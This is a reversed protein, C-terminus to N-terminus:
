GTLSEHFVAVIDPLRQLHSILQVKGVDGQTHHQAFGYLQRGSVKVRM